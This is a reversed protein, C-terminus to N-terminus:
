NVGKKVKQCLYHEPVLKYEIKLFKALASLKMEITRIGFVKKLMEMTIRRLPIVNGILLSLIGLFIITFIVANILNASIFYIVFGIMIIPLFTGIGMLADFDRRRQRHKGLGFM